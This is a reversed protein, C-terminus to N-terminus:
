CATAAPTTDGDYAGAVIPKRGLPRMTGSFSDIHDGELHDRLLNESWSSHSIPMRRQSMSYM